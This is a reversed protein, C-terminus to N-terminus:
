RNSDVSGDGHGKNKNMPCERHSTRLHTTSGCKCKKKSAIIVARDPGSVSSSGLFNELVQQTMLKLTM